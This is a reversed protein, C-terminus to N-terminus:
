AGKAAALPEAGPAATSKEFAAIEDEIARLSQHLLQRHTVTRANQLQEALRSRTLRLADMKHKREFGEVVAPDAAQESRPQAAAQVQEEVAKSEWGRAM